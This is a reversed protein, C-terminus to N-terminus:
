WSIWTSKLYVHSGFDTYPLYFLKCNLPKEFNWSSNRSIIRPILSFNKRCVIVHQKVIRHFILSGAMEKISLNLKILACVKLDNPSIDPILRVYEKRLFKTLVRLSCTLIIRKGSETRTWWDALRVTKPFRSILKVKGEAGADVWKTAFMQVTLASLQSEKFEIWKAHVTWADKRNNWLKVLEERTHLLVKDRINESDPIHYQNFDIVRSRYRGFYIIPWGPFTM